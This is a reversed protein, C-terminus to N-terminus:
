VGGILFQEFDTAHCRVQEERMGIKSVLLEDHLLGAHLKFINKLQKFTWDLSAM